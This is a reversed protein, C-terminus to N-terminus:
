GAVLMGGERVHIPEGDVISELKEPDLVIIPCHRGYLRRAVVAGVALIEDVETVVIAAPATGLRIAEALATSSSSSGRGATMVLVRGVVSVGASVGHVDLVRGSVPDFAMAFSLPDTLVLADGSAEGPVLARGPLESAM